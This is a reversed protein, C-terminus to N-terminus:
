LPTDAPQPTSARRWERVWLVGAGCASIWASAFLWGALVDTPWHVGLLVRSPGMLLGVTILAIGPWRSDLLALAVIGFVVYGYIGAMSHGSPFSPSTLVEFPDPWVPRQRDILHKVSQSIMWGGMGCLGVWWAWYGHGRRALVVVVGVTAPVLVIWSGLVAFVKTVPVVRTHDHAFTYANTALLLDDAQSVAPPGATLPMGLGPGDALVLRTLAAAAMALLLALGALIWPTPRRDM